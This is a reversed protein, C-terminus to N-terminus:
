NLFQYCHSQNKPNERNERNNRNLTMYYIPRRKELISCFQKKKSSVKRFIILKMLNVPWNIIPWYSM